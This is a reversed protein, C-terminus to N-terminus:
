VDLFVAGFYTVTAPGNNYKLGTLKALQSVDVGNAELSMVASDPHRCPEQDVYACKECVKCPGAGLVQAEHGPAAQGIERALNQVLKAFSDAVAMMGRYDFASKLTGVHSFVLAKTHTKLKGILDDIEGVAPPCMWGKDYSRCRNAECLKRFEARFIIDAVDVLGTASAGLREALLAVNALVPEMAAKSGAGLSDAEGSDAIAPSAELSDAANSGAADPGEKM